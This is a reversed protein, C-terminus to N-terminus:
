RRSSSLIAERNFSPKLPPNIMLDFDFRGILYIPITLIGPDGIEGHSGSRAYLVFDAIRDLLLKDGTKSSGDGVKVEIAYTCKTKRSYFLFDIEGNQYTGWTPRKRDPGPDYEIKNLELFVFNEALLEKASSM